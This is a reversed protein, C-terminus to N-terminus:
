EEIVRMGENAVPLILRDFIEQETIEGGRNKIGLNSAIDQIEKGVVRSMVPRPRAGKTAGEPVVYDYFGKGNKQGYWGERYLFDGINRSADAVGMTERQRGRLDIGVLDSM